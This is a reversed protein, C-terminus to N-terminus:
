NKGFDDSLLDDFNIQTHGHFLSRFKEAFDHRSGSLQLTTTIKTIHEKLEEKANEELFRHLRIFDPDKGSMDCYAARKTKLEDSLGAYIPAYIFRNTWAGVWSPKNKSADFSDGYINLLAVYFDDRFTKRWKEPISLLITDVPRLKERAVRFALILRVRFEKTEETSRTLTLLFITQDFNLWYYKEPRGAGESSKATEFRYIGLRSLEPEHAEISERLNKHQVGFVKAVDRSDVLLDAGQNFIPILDKMPSIVATEVRTPLENAPTEGAAIAALINNFDGKIPEHMKPPRSM